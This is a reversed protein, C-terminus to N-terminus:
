DEGDTTAALRELNKRLIGDTRWVDGTLTYTKGAGTQGYAYIAFKDLERGEDSKGFNIKGIDNQSATEPFIM